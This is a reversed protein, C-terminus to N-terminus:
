QSGPCVLRYLHRWSCQWQALYSWGGLRNSVGYCCVSRPWVSSPWTLEAWKYVFQQLQVNHQQLAVTISNLLATTHNTTQDNPQYVTPSYKIETFNLSWCIGSEGNLTQIRGAVPSLWLSRTCSRWCSPTCTCVVSGANVAGEVGATTMFTHVMLWQLTSSRMSENIWQYPVLPRHSRSLGTIRQCNDGRKELKVAM